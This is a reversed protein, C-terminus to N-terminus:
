ISDLLAKAEVYEPFDAQRQFLVQLLTRAEASQGEDALVRALHYAVSPEDPLAEHAKRLHTLAAPRDGLRYHVWGLTDLATPDGGASATTALALAEALREPTAAPDSAIAYALNNSVARLGPQRELLRRYIGEAEAHQGARQLLQGLLVAEALSDPNKALAARSDAIAADLKGTRAKLTALRMAPVSSEPDRRGAETFAAEAQPFDKLEMATRGLLDAARADKPRSNSWARAWALAAAPGAAEREVRVMMEAAGLADPHERLIGEFTRRAAPWDKRAAQLAGIRMLAPVRAQEFDMAQRFHAEAADYHGRRAEIGGMAFLLRPEMGGHASAAQLVGIAADANGQREQAAALELRLEPSDPKRELAARLTEQGSLANGMAFQAKAMLIVVPVDAPNDHLAIRLEALAEEHRGQLMLIRGRAAHGRADGPNVRLVTDVEALAGDRDGRRLKIESLRLKADLGAPGADADAALAALGAEAEAARGTAMQVASQALRLKPTPGKPGQGAVALAEDPKGTRMLYEVLRLRAEESEPEAALLERLIGEVRGADGMREYLAALLVMVGRNAPDLEKLKMLHGEAAEFKGQDAALSAARFHLARSGPKGGLADEVVRLAEAGRGQEAHIVSLALTADENGPDKAFVEDLQLRAEDLRKARLMAGVRLLRGDHSAPDIALIRSASDEAKAADGSLLYLRGVGLLAEVNDPALESARQYNAFAERWNQEKLACRGLLLYAGAHNPDLKIVNKAEIRAEAMRGEGEFKLGNAFFDDRREEKSGCGLFTLGMILCILIRRM